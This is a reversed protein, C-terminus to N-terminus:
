FHVDAAELSKSFNPKRMEREANIRFMYYAYFDGGFLFQFKPNEQQQMKTLNELDPGNRAVFKALNDIISRQEPDLRSSLRAM